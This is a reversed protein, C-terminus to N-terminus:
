SPGNQRPMDYGTEHESRRKAEEVAERLDLKTAIADLSNLTQRQVANTAQLAETVDKTAETNNNIAGLMQEQVFKNQEVIENDKRNITSIMETERREERDRDSKDKKVTWWIFFGAIAAPFGFKEVMTWIDDM